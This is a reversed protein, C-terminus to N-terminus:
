VTESLSISQMFYITVGSHEQYRQKSQAAGQLM